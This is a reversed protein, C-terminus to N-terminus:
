GSFLTIKGLKQINLPYGILEFSPRRAVGLALCSNVPLSAAFWRPVWCSMPVSCWRCWPPWPPVLSDGCYSTAVWWRRFWRFGHGMHLFNQIHMHIFCSCVPRLKFIYLAYIYIYRERERETEIGKFGQFETPIIHADLTIHMRAYAHM